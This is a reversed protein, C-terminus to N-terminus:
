HTSANLRHFSIKSLSFAFANEIMMITEFKMESQIFTSTFFIEDNMADDFSETSFDSVVFFRNLVNM